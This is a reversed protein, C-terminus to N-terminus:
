SQNSLYDAASRREILLSNWLGLSIVADPVTRRVRLWAMLQVMDGPSLRDGACEDMLSVTAKDLGPAPPAAACGLPNAELQEHRLHSTRDTTWLM